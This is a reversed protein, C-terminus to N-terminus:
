YNIAMRHGYYLLSRVGKEQGKKMVGKEDIYAFNNQQRGM